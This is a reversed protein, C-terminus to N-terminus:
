PLEEPPGAGGLGLLLPSGRHHFWLEDSRVRHWASEEDPLLLFLIGTALARPGPYDSGLAEETVETRHRYTEAYWGDEPHPRLGLPQAWDPLATADRTM